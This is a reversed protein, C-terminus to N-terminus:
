LSRHSIKAQKVTSRYCHPNAINRDIIGDIFHDIIHLPLVTKSQLIIQVVDPFLDLGGVVKHKGFHLKDLM